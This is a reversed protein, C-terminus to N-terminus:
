QLLLQLWSVWVVLTEQVVCGWLMCVYVGPEHSERREPGQDLERGHALPLAGAARIKGVRAEGERRAHRLPTPGARVACSSEGRRQAAM